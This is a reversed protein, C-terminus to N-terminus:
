NNSSRLFKEGENKVDKYKTQAMLEKVKKKLQIRKRLTLRNALKLAAVQTGVYTSELGSAAISFNSDCTFHVLTLIIRQKIYETKEFESFKKNLYACEDMKKGILIASFSKAGAWHHSKLINDLKQVNGKASLVFVSGLILILYKM